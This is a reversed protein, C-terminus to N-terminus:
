IINKKILYCSDLLNIFNKEDVSPFYSINFDRVPKIYSYEIQCWFKYTIKKYDEEKPYSFMIVECVKERVRTICGMGYQGCIKSIYCTQGVKRVVKRSNEDSISAFELNKDLEDFPLYIIEKLGSYSISLGVRKGIHDIKILFYTQYSNKYLYICHLYYVNHNTVVKEDSPTTESIEWTYYPIYSMYSLNGM